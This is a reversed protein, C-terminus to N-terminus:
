NLYKQCNPARCNCRIKEEESDERPFKYDYTIEEDEQIVQKAYIVISNSGNDHKIVKAICNPNCSHNIFRAKNGKSTADIVDYDVRFFYSSGDHNPLGPYVINERHDAVSPRIKEGVYEIVADGSSIKECAFLGWKHIKSRSFRLNKARMQLTSTTYMKILKDDLNPNLAAIRRQDGRQDRRSSNAAQIVHSKIPAKILDEYNVEEEQVKAKESVEIVDCRSCGRWWKPHSEAGKAEIMPKRTMFLHARNAADSGFPIQVENNTSSQEKEHVQKLFEIDEETLTGLLDNLMQRKEETSRPEFRFELDAKEDEADVFLNEDATTNEINENHSSLTGPTFRKKVARYESAVAVPEDVKKRKRGPKKPAPKVMKDKLKETKIKNDGAGTQLSLLGQLAELENETKIDPSMKTLPKEEPIEDDDSASFSSLSSPSTPRSDSASSSSTSSSSSGSSSISSSSSSARDDDDSYSDISTTHSGHREDAVYASSRNVRRMDTDGRRKTDQITNLDNTRQRLLNAKPRVEEVPRNFRVRPNMYRREFQRQLEADNREKEKKMKEADLKAKFAAQNKEICEYGLNEKLRKEFLYVLLTNQIDKEFYKFCWPLVEEEIQQESLEIKIPQKEVVEPPKNWDDDDNKNQEFLYKESKSNYTKNNQYHLNSQSNIDSGRLENLELRQKIDLPKLPASAPISPSHYYNSDNLNFASYTPSAQPGVITALPCNPRKMLSAIRDDLRPRSTSDPTTMISSPTTLPFDLNHPSKQLHHQSHFLHSHHLGTNPLSSPTVNTLLPNATVIPPIIPSPTPQQQNQTIQSPRPNIKEEKLKEIRLFRLDMFVNLQRGMMQKGNFNEVCALAEQVSEFEVKALGLHQGTKRHRIIELTRVKGIRTLEKLLFNEDINDNINEISVQIEPPDGVYNDDITFRTSGFDFQAADFEAKAGQHYKYSKLRPDEGKNSDM